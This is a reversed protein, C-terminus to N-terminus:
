PQPPKLSLKPRNKEDAGPGFYTAAVDPDDPVVVLRVPEGKEIRARVLEAADAELTLSFDDVEGTMRKIFRGSGLVQCPSLQQGLGDAGKLDFTLAAAAGDEASKLSTKIDPTLYFKIKGDKAFSPVSQVLTLKLVSGKAPPETGKPFVFELVGFSAFRGGEGSNKGQVNFYNTGARGGRPGKTQVTAGAQAMAEPEARAAALGLLAAAVGLMAVVHRRFPSM